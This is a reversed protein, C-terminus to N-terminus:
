ELGSLQDHELLSRFYVDELTARAAVAGAPPTDALLRVETGGTKVRTSLVRHRARIDALQEKTAGELIWLRGELSQILAKAEGVLLIKGRGMIAIHPCIDEVDDVIHTSLLVVVDAGLEVLLNHFRRREAPDLGATPEDVIILKPNGILAQAIGYRQRMGGSFKDISRHRADWLNTKVLLGKLVQDRQKGHIGKLAAFHTLMALVSTRPYAGFHQPLYGLTRRLATRDKLVDIGDFTISGTDPEQLTALTRMLSSKGAGNPGLLGFMGKPIDLNINQLAPVNGPYTKSIGSLHLM